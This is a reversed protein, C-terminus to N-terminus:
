SDIGAPDDRGNREKTPRYKNEDNVVDRLSELCDILSHKTSEGTEGTASIEVGGQLVEAVPAPM